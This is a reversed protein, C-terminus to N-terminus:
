GEGVSAKETDLCKFGLSNREQVEEYEELTGARCAEDAAKINVRYTSMCGTLMLFTM